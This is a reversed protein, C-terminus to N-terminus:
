KFYENIPKEDVEYPVKLGDIEYFKDPISNENYDGTKLELQSSKIYPTDYKSLIGFLTVGVTILLGVLGLGFLPGPTNEIAYEKERTDDPNFLKM